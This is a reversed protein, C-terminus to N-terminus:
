APIPPGCGRPTLRPRRGPPRRPPKALAPGTALPTTPFPTRTRAAPKAKVEAPPAARAPRPRRLVPPLPIALMRCLPRLARGTHPAAAILALM